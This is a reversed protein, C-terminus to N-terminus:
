KEGRAHALAYANIADVLTDRYPGDGCKYRKGYTAFHRYKLIITYGRRHDGLAEQLRQFAQFAEAYDQEFALDIM